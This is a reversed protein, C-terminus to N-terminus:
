EHHIRAILRDMYVTSEPFLAKETEFSQLAQDAKGSQFYLYGVHAHFGPPVPKNAARARQYDRELDELQKEPPAKGPDRYMVYIQENYSGWRYLLPKRACATLVTAVVLLLFLSKSKRM